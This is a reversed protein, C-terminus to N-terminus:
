SAWPPSLRDALSKAFREDEQGVFWIESTTRAKMAPAGEFFEVDGDKSAELSAALQEWLTRDANAPILSVFHTEDYGHCTAQFTYEGASYHIFDGSVWVDHLAFDARITETSCPDERCAAAHWYSGSVDGNWVTFTGEGHVGLMAGYSLSGDASFRISGMSADFDSIRCGDLNAPTAARALPPHIEAAAAAQGSLVALFIPFWRM